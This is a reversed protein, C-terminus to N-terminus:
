ERAEIRELRGDIRALITHISALREEGRAANLEAARIRDDHKAVESQMDAIVRANEQTQGEVRVFAAVGAVLLAAITLVNGLSISSTFTPRTM